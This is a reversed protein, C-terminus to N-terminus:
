KHKHAEVLLVINSATLNLVYSALYDPVEVVHSGQGHGGKRNRITSVGDALVSRLGGFHSYLESPILENEFMIDILAKASAGQSYEWKRKDCITKMTSEFSNLALRIAEKTNRQRYHRHAELFEQSAGQFDLERLLSLAPEIAESHMYESTMEIILGERYQYGIQHERFRWNLERIAEDPHILGSVEKRDHLLRMYRDVLRFSFEIFSLVADVDQEHLLYNICVEQITTGQSLRFVGLERTLMDHISTWRREIAGRRVIAQYDGLEVNGVSDRLILAVQVRFPEPLRDYHYIVPKGAM